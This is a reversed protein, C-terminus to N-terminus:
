RVFGVVYDFFDALDDVPHPNWVNLNNELVTSLGVCSPLTKEGSHM